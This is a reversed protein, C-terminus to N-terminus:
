QGRYTVKVPLTLGKPCFSEALAALAQVQVDNGSHAMVELCWKLAVIRDPPVDFEIHAWKFGNAIQARHYVARQANVCECCAGNSSFREGTHGQRCPNGTTYRTLGLIMAENRKM